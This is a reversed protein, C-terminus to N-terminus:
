RMQALKVRSLGRTTERDAKQGTVGTVADRIKLSVRIKLNVKDKRSIRDKLDIRIGNIQVRAKDAKLM